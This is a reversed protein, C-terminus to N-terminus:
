QNRDWVATTTWKHSTIWWLCTFRFWMISSQTTQESSLIRLIPQFFPQATHTSTNQLSMPGSHSRFSKKLRTNSDRCLIRTKLLGLSLFLCIPSAVEASILMVLLFTGHLFATFTTRSHLWVSVIHNATTIQSSSPSPILLCVLSITDVLFYLLAYSPQLSSCLSKLHGSPVYYIQIHLHSSKGCDGCFIQHFKKATQPLLFIIIAIHLNLSILFFHPLFQLSKQAAQAKIFGSICDIFHSYLIFSEASYIAPRFILNPWRNVCSLLKSLFWRWLSPLYPLYFLFM